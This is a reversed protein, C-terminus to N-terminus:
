NNANVQLDFSDKFDKIKGGELKDLHIGEKVWFSTPFTLLKMLKSMYPGLSKVARNDVQMMECSM